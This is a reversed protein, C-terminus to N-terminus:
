PTRRRHLACSPQATISSPTGIPWLTNSMDTDKSPNTAPRVLSRVVPEAVVTGPQVPPEPETLRGLVAPDRAPGAPHVAFHHVLHHRAARDDGPAARDFRRVPPMAVVVFAHRDEDEGAGPRGVRDGLPRQDRHEVIDGLRHRAM